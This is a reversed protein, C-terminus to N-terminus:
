HTPNVTIPGDTTVVVVTGSHTLWNSGRKIMKWNEKSGLYAITKLKPTDFFCNFGINKVSKPIVVSELNHCNAFAGAGLSTIGAPIKADKLSLDKAFAHDGIEDIDQPLSRSLPPEPQFTITQPAVVVQQQYATQQYSQNYPQLQPQPQPQQNQLPASNDEGVVVDGDLSSTKKSALVRNKFCKVYIIGIVILSLLIVGDIIFSWTVFYVSIGSIDQIMQQILVLYTFFLGIDITFILFIAWAQNLTDKPRSIHGALIWVLGYIAEFIAVIYAIALFGALGVEIWEHFKSVNVLLPNGSTYSAAADTFKTLHEGLSPVFRKLGLYFYDLGTYTIANEGEQYAFLPLFLFAVLAGVILLTFLGTFFAGASYRRYTRLGIRRHNASSM